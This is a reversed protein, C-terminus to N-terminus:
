NKTTFSNILYEGVNWEINSQFKSKVELPRSSMIVREPQINKFYNGTDWKGNNNRDFIIKFLYSGPPLFDMKIDQNKSVFFERIINGKVDLLQFILNGTGLYKHIEEKPIDSKNKPTSTTATSDVSTTTDSNLVENAHVNKLNLILTAYYNIERTAFEYKGVNSYKRFFDIFAMSDLRLIYKTNSKWDTSILKRRISTSDNILKYKSPLYIHVTQADKAKKDLSEGTSKPKIDIKRKNVLKVTDSFGIIKGKRDKDNSNIILSLTDIDSVFKDTIKCTITDGTNNKEFTNWATNLTFSQSIIIPNRSLPKNYVLKIEDNKTRTISSLYQPKEKYVLRMTEEFFVSDNNLGIYDFCKVSFTLTDKEIVKQDILIINISDASSNKKIQYFNNGAFFDEPIIEIRTNQPKYLALSIIDPTSRKRSIVKQVTMPMVITDDLEQIQELFFYNDYQVKLKLTDMKALENNNIQCSYVRGSDSISTSYWNEAKFNLGNILFRRAVPRKFKFYLLDKKLRFAKVIKQEKTDKTLTDKIEFLKIKSTDASILPNPSEILLAKDLDVMNEKALFSIKLYEKEVKKTKSPKRKWADDAKKERYAFAVTDKFLSLVGLSDKKLYTLQVNLTDNKIAITDNLWCTITDKGPSKEIFINEPAITNSLPIFRFEDGVPLQFAMNMRSREMRNIDILKQIVNDEKFMYLRLNSPKRDFTPTIIVTDKKLSDSHTADDLDHLITGAKLSDVKTTPIRLPLILSDIFARPEFADLKKNGNMDTQAFIKYKGPKIHDIIFNGLTDIKGMYSPLEKTPISDQFTDFIEVFTNEPVTLDFANRLNGAIAFSDIVSYTSFVFRFNKLINGENFDAVSKGFYLIYTVSDKLPEKFKIIGNKRKVKFDPIKEFPPSSYFEQNIDKFEFFENFTFFVREENFNTDLPKPHSAILVPPISDKKGGSITGINACSFLLLSIFLSLGITNLFQFLKNM